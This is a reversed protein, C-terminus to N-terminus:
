QATKEAALTAISDLLWAINGDDGQGAWVAPDLFDADAIVLARGAGIRCDGVMGTRDITCGAKQRVLSGPSLFRVDHDGMTQEVVATAMGQPADLRLGWHSLLPTLLSTVAPNRPDGLPHITAWSSLGDALVIASGGGRVWTDIAALTAPPLARPHALLLVDTRALTAADIADVLQLAVDGGLAALLPDAPLSPDLMASLSAGSNLGIPLSTLMTVRPTVRAVSRQEPASAVVPASSQRLAIWGGAIGIALLVGGSLRILRHRTGPTGPM